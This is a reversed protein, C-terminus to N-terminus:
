CSTANGKRPRNQRPKCRKQLFFLGKCRIFCTQFNDSSLAVMPAIIRSFIKLIQSFPHFTQACWKSWKFNIQFFVEVVAKYLMYQLHAGMYFYKVVENCPTVFFQCTRVYRHHWFRVTSGINTRMSLRNLRAIKL